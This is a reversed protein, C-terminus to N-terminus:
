FPWIVIVCQQESGCVPRKGFDVVAIAEPANEFLTLFRKESEQRRVAEQRFQGAKLQISTRLRRNWLALPVIFGLAIM